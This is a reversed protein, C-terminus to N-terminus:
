PRIFMATIGLIESQLKGAEHQLSETTMTGKYNRHWYREVQRDQIKKSCQECRRRPRSNDCPIEQTTLVDCWTAGLAARLDASCSALTTLQESTPSVRRVGKEDPLPLLASMGYIERPAILAIPKADTKTYLRTITEMLDSAMREAVAQSAVQDKFSFLIEVMKAQRLSLMCKAWDTCNRIISQGGMSEFPTSALQQAAVAALLDRVTWDQELIIRYPIINVCAGFIEQSGAQSRGHVLSGFVVDDTASHRALLYAWAAKLVNAFTFDKSNIVAAPLTKVVESGAVYGLQFTSKVSSNPELAARLCSAGTSQCRRETSFHYVDNACVSSNYNDEFATWMRRLAIGDYQVHSLRIVIRYRQDRTQHITFFKTFVDGLRLDSQSDQKKLHLTYGGLGDTATEFVTSDFHVYRLVTQLFVTKYPIVVIRLMDFQRLLSLLAHRIRPFDFKGDLDMAHYFISSRAASYTGPLYPTQQDTVPPIDLVNDTSLGYETLQDIAM